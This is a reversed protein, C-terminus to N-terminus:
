GRATLLRAMKRYCLEEDIDLGLATLKVSVNCNLDNARIAQFVRLYTDLTEAVQEQNRVSEGLLDVSASIGQANLAAVAPIAEEITEGAVFRRAVRASWRNRRVFSELRKNDALQLLLSRALM